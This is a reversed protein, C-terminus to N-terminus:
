GQTLDIDMHPNNRLDVSRSGPWVGIPSPTYHHEHTASSPPPASDPTAMALKESSRQSKDSKPRGVPREPKQVLSAATLMGIAGGIVHGDPTSLSASMGGTRDSPDGDEAVLYSGSLCLIEFRGEYTATPGASAPQRLTVSSATGNGSLVCVARPRQQAFSLIKAVIDQYDGLDALRQKRGTGPPRGRRKSPSMPDGDSSTKKPKILLPSLGLSVQGDPAYKRPRGRKKKVPQESMPPPPPASMDIGHHGHGSSSNVVNSHDMSFSSGPRSANNQIQFNPTPSSRFQPPPPHLPGAQSGYGGSGGGYGPGRHLYYPNSGSSLAM